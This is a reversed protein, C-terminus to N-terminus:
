LCLWATYLNGYQDCYRDTRTVIDLTVWTLAGLVVIFVALGVASSVSGVQRAQWLHDNATAQSHLNDLLIPLSITEEPTKHPQTLNKVKISNLNSKSPMVPLCYFLLFMWIHLNMMSLVKIQLLYLNLLNLFM